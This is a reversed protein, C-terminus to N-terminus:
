FGGVQYTFVQQRATGGPPTWQITMTVGCLTAICTNGTADQGLAIIVTSNPLNVPSNSFIDTLLPKLGAPATSLTSAKYTIPSSTGLLSQLLAPDAQLLAWFRNGFTQTSTVMENGTQAAMLRSYLGALALLGFVFILLAALVSILTMGRQNRQTM